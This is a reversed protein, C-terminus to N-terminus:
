AQPASISLQVPKPTELTEVVPLPNSLANVAAEVFASLVTDDPVPLKFTKFFSRLMVMAHDKKETNSSGPFQQEVFAVVTNAWTEVYLRQQAPLHIVLIHYFYGLIIIILPVLCPIIAIIIANNM